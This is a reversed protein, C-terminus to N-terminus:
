FKTMPPPDVGLPRVTSLAGGNMLAIKTSRKKSNVKKLFVTRSFKGIFKKLACYGSVLKEMRLPSWPLLAGEAGLPPSMDWHGEEKLVGRDIYILDRHM